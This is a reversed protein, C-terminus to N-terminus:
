ISSTRTEKPLNTKRQTFPLDDIPVSSVMLCKQKDNACVTLSGTEGNLHYVASFQSSM